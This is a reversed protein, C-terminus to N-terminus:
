EEWPIEVIDERRIGQAEYEEYKALKEAKKAYYKAYRSRDKQVKAIFDQVDSIIRQKNKTFDEVFQKEVKKKIEKCKASLESQELLLASKKALAEAKEVDNLSNNLLTNIRHLKLSVQKAKKYEDSYEYYKKLYAKKYLAEDDLVKEFREKAKLATSSKDSYAKMQEKQEETLVKKNSHVINAFALSFKKSSNIIQSPPVVQIGLRKAIDEALGRTSLIILAEQVDYKDRVNCRLMTQICQGIAYDKTSDYGLTFQSFWADIAPTANYAALVSIIRYKIYKNIGRSDTTLSTYCERLSKPLDDDALMNTGGLYKNYNILVNNKLYDKLTTDSDNISFKFKSKLWTLSYKLSMKIAFELPTIYVLSPQLKKFYQAEFTLPESSLKHTRNARVLDLVSNYKNFSEHQEIDKSNKCINFSAITDKNITNVLSSGVSYVVGKNYIRKSIYSDNDYVYTITAAACRRSILKENKELIKVNKEPELKFNVDSKLCGAKNASSLVAYLQSDKFFASMLTVKKWGSFASYPVQVIALVARKSKSESDKTSLRIFISSGEHQTIYSELKNLMAYGGDEIISDRIEPIDYFKNSIEVYEKFVSEGYHEAILGSTKESLIISISNCYCSRAEDMLLWTSAKNWFTKNSSNASHNANWFAAETIFVICGLSYCLPSTLNKFDLKEYSSCDEYSLGKYARIYECEIPNEKQFQNYLQLKDRMSRNCYMSSDKLLQRINKAYYSNTAVAPELDYKYGQITVSHEDGMISTEDKMDSSSRNPMGYLRYMMNYASAIYSSSTDYDLNSVFKAFESLVTKQIELLLSITPAVVIVLQPTKEYDIELHKRSSNIHTYLYQVLQSAMWYTKGTGPLYDIYNIVSSLNNTM